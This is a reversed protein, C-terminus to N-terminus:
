RERRQPRAPSFPNASPSAGPSASSRAAGPIEAGTIVLAGEALGEVLAVKQGDSIGVVVPTAVPQGDPGPTFVVSRRGRSRESGDTATDTAATGRDRRGGRAAAGGAGPSAGGRRRGAGAEFGEPRFRLASAPLRLVDRAERVL